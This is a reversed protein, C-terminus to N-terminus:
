PKLAIRAADRVTLLIDRREVDARRRKEDDYILESTPFTAAGDINEREADPRREGEEFMRCM